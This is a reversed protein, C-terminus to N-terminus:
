FFIEQTILWLIVRIRANGFYPSGNKHKKINGSIHLIKNLIPYISIQVLIKFDRTIYVACNQFNQKMFWVHLLLNVFSHQLSNWLELVVKFFRKKSDFKTLKKDTNLNLFSLWTPVVNKHWSPVSYIESPTYLVLDFSPKYHLTHVKM